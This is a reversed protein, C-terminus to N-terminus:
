LPFLATAQPNDKRSKPGGYNAHHRGRLFFFGILWLHVRISFYPTLRAAAIKGEDRM